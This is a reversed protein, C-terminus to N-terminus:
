QAASGSLCKVSPCVVEKSCFTFSACNIGHHVSVRASAMWAVSDSSCVYHGARCVTFIIGNLSFGAIITGNFHILGMLIAVVFNM